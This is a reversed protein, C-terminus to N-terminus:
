AIGLADAEAPVVDIHSIVLMPQKSGDGPMRAFANGRGRASEIVEADIGEAALVDRIYNAAGIENGPPNSTDFQVLTRLHGLAEENAANWDQEGMDSVDGHNM